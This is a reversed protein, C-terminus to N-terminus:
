KSKGNHNIKPNFKSKNKRLNRQYCACQEFYFIADRTQADFLRILWKALEARQFSLSPNLLEDLLEQFEDSRRVIIRLYEEM